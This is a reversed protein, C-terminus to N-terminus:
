ASGVRRCPRRKPKTFLRRRKKSKSEDEFDAGVRGESLAKEKAKYLTEAEKQEKVALDSAKGAAEKMKAIAETTAKQSKVLNDIQAPYTAPAADKANVVDKWASVSDKNTEMYKSVAKKSKM